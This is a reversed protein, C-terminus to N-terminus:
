IEDVGAAIQASTLAPWEGPPLTTPTDRVVIIKLGAGFDRLREAFEQRANDWDLFVCVILTTQAAQATLSEELREWDAGGSLRTEASAEALLDLAPDLAAM